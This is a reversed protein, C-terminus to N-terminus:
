GEDVHERILREMHQYSEIMPPIERPALSEGLAAALAAPAVRGEKGAVMVKSLASAITEGRRVIRQEIYLWKDDWCVLRASVQFKQLRRLSRRFQVSISAMPAAWGRKAALRALGTRLQLDIRAMEFFVLYAANNVVSADADMPWVRASVVATETAGLRPRGISRLGVLLFRLWRAM